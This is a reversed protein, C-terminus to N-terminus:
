LWKILWIPICLKQIRRFTIPQEITRVNSSCVPDNLFSTKIYVVPAAASRFVWLLDWILRVNFNILVVFWLAINNLKCTQDYIISKSRELALQLYMILNEIGERYKCVGVYTGLIVTFYLKKSYTKIVESDM